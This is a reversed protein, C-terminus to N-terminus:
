DSDDEQLPLDLENLDVGAGCTVCRTVHPAHRINPGHIRVETDTLTAVHPCDSAM